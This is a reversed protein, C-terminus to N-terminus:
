LLKIVAVNTKGDFDAGMLQLINLPVSMTLDEYDEKIGVVKLCLISGYNL